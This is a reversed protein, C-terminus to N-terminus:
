LKKSKRKRNVVVITLKSPSSSRKLSKRPSRNKRSKKPSRSKRRKGASRKLSKKIVDLISPSRRSAAVM